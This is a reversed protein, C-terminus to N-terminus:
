HSLSVPHAPPPIKRLWSTPPSPLFSPSAKIGDKFHFPFTGWCEGGGRAPSSPSPPRLPQPPAPPSLDCPPPGGLHARDGCGTTLRLPSYLSPVVPSIAGSGGSPGPSHLGKGVGSLAPTFGLLGLGPERNRARYHCHAPSVQSRKPHGSDPRRLWHSSM